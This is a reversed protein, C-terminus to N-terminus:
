GLRGPSHAYRRWVVDIGVEGSTIPERPPSRREIEVFGLRKPIAGSAHNAADHVIEVRDAGIRFAEETLAKATRTAIGRGTRQPHLWYGIELGGPGIRAMLGCSGIIMSASSLIAYQFATGSAWDDQSQEIFSIADARTYGNTVWAMWPALHDLSETVVRLVADVDGRRWRRLAIDGSILEESPYEM